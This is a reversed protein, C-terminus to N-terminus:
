INDYENCLPYLIPEDEIISVYRDSPYLFVNDTKDDNISSVEGIILDGRGRKPFFRHHMGPELTISGGKEIEVIAGAPLTRIIGDMKVNIDSIEDLKGDPTSNYLQLVLIGGGRNIIDETKMRHFHFTIEQPHKDFLFILKEAYPTGASSDTYHGNRITFLTAGEEEFKGLGYDTVDWGLMIKKLNELEGMREKWESLSWYAFEPLKLSEKELMAMANLIASNVASRKM